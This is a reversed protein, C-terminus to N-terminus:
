RLVVRNLKDSIIKKLEIYQIQEALLDLLKEESDEIRIKDQLELIKSEVNKVKLALVSYEVALLLKKDETVVYIKHNKWNASLEYPSETLAICTEIINSNEHQFFVKSTLIKEQNIAEAYMNYINQYVQSEFVIEDNSLEHVIYECVHVSIIEEVEEENLQKLEIELDGYSLLLRIIDREQFESSKNDNKKQEETKYEFAPIHQVEEKSTNNNGQHKKRLVKNLENYLAKESIDFLESCESIYISRKVENTIVSITTIIDNILGAKKIPDNKVDKLLLDSKFRIFDKSENTIYEELEKQSVKKAYSDPDEGDPFLIVKVNMGEELIMDIGRFSAKIGAYDGDYLITINPTYRKILRIQDVTLSTGSSSVVNEVGSQALSIVDTYGEVLYCVDKKVIHKKAFFLGYLVKSKNYVETEPSNFYKATKKDNTLIRGGFAIVKGTLNRIPFVVRGKFFDFQKEGNVKTLGAKELYDLKYGDKLAKSTFADWKSPNYGLQFKEITEKDYGRKTFYSLGVSKGEDTNLLQYSFYEQAYSNVIQLSERSTQREKQEPTQEKEEIEISYKNAIYKLAEPYTLQEHDMIFNVSNGGKGCGFCKYIGKAPSVTFSPTKENHFPCNGLLNTGRKKLTVFDGVVEEIIARDFIVEITEKPIM